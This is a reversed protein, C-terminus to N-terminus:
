MIGILSQFGADKMSKLVREHKFRVYDRDPISVLTKRWGTGGILKFRVYDRDPISVLVSRSLPQILVRKFRM